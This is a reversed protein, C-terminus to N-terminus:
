AHSMGWDDLAEEESMALRMHKGKGKHSPSVLRLLQQKVNSDDKHSRKRRRGSDGRSRRRSGVHSENSTCRRAYSFILAVVSLGSAVLLVGLAIAKFSAAEESGGSIGM